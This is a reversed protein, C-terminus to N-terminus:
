LTEESKIEEFGTRAEEVFKGVKAPDKRGAANEV